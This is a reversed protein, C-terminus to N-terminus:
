SVRVGHFGIWGQILSGTVAEAAAGGIRLAEMEAELDVGSMRFDRNGSRVDLQRLEVFARGAVDVSADYSGEEVFGHTLEVAWEVDKGHGAMYLNVVEAGGWEMLWQEEDAAVKAAFAALEEMLSFELVGVASDESAAFAEEDDDVLLQEGADAERL